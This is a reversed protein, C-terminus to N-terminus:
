HKAGERSGFSAIHIIYNSVLNRIEQSIVGHLGSLTLQMDYLWWLSFSLNLFIVEYFKKYYMTLM